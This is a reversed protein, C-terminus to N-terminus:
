KVARREGESRTGRAWSSEKSSPAGRERRALGAHGGRSRVQRRAERGGLSDESRTRMGLEGDVGLGAGGVACRAASEM